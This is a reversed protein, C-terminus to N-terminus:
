GQVRVTGLLIPYVRERRMYCGGKWIQASASQALAEHM